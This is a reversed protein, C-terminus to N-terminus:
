SKYSQVVFRLADVQSNVEAAMSKGELQGWPPLRRRGNVSGGARVPPETPGLVSNALAKRPVRRLQRVPSGSRQFGVRSGVVLGEDLRPSYKPYISSLDM